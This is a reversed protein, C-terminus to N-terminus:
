TLPVVEAELLAMMVSQGNLFMGAVEKIADYKIKFEEKFDHPDHHKNNSYKKM